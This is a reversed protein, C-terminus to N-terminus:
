ETGDTVSLLPFSCIQRNHLLQYERAGRKHMTGSPSHWTERNSCLTYKRLENAPTPTIKCLAINRSNSLYDVPVIGSIRCPLESCLLYKLFWLIEAIWIIIIHCVCVSVSARWGNYLSVSEWHGAWLDRSLCDSVSAACKWWHHLFLHFEKGHLNM